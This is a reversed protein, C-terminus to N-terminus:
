GGLVGLVGGLWGLWALSRCHTHYHHKSAAQGVRGARESESGGLRAVCTYNCATYDCASFVTDCRIADCRITGRESVWRSALDGCVGLRHHRRPRNRRVVRLVIGLNSLCGRPRRFVGSVAYDNGLEVPQKSSRRPFGVLDRHFRCRHKATLVSCVHGFVHLFRCDTGSVETAPVRSLCTAALPPM